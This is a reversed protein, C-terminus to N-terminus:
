RGAPTGAGACGNCVPEDPNFEVVPDSKPVVLRGHDTDAIRLRMGAVESEAFAELLRGMERFYSHQAARQVLNAYGRVWRGLHLTWFRKVELEIRRADARDGRDLAAAARELSVAVFLLEVGLQDDFVHFRGRAVEFGAERYVRRVQHYPEQQIRGCLRASEIPPFGGAAVFMSAYEVGLTEVLEDVDPALFDADFVIGAESLSALSDPARIAEVLAAGPEEVFVGSLLRYVGARALLEERDLVTPAEIEVAVPAAAGPAVELELDRLM